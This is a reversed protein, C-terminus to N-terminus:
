LIRGFNQALFILDFIDIEGNEDIDAAPNWDEDGETTGFSNAAMIADSIDVTGDENLDGPLTKLNTFSGDATTFPLATNTNDVLIVDSIHLTSNKVNDAMVQFQIVAIEGNGDLPTSLSINFKVFGTANDIQTIPTVSGPVFSGRAVSQANLATSNFNLKFELGAVGSANIIGINIAFTSGSSLSANVIKAPDVYL